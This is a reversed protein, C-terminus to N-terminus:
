SEPYDESHQISKQNLHIFFLVKCCSNTKHFRWLLCFKQLFVDIHLPSVMNSM